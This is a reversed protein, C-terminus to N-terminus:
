QFKLVGQKELESMLALLTVVFRGETSRIEEKTAEVWRGNQRTWIRYSSPDGAAGVSYGEATAGNQGRFLYRTAITSHPNKPESDLMQFHLRMPCVVATPQCIGHAVLWVITADEGQKLAAQVEHHIIQGEAQGSDWASSDPADAPQPSFALEYTTAARVPVAALVFLVALTVLMGRM